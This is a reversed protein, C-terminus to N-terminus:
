ARLSVGGFMHFRPRMKRCAFQLVEILMAAIHPSKFTKNRRRRQSSDEGYTYQTITKPALRGM